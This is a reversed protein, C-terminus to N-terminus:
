GGSSGGDDEGDYLDYEFERELFKISEPSEFDFTSAYFSRVSDSAM